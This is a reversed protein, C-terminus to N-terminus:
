IRCGFKQLYVRAVPILRKADGNVSEAIPCWYNKTRPYPDYDAQNRYERASKLQNAWLMSDPFDDPIKSSLVTHQEHDDGGYYLYAASRMAHYMTYYSRSVTLRHMAVSATPSFVCQRRIEAALKFRAVAVRLRLESISMRAAREISVGELWAAQEKQKAKGIRLLRKTDLM